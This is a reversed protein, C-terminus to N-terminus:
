LKDLQVLYQLEQSIGRMGVNKSLKVKHSCCMVSELWTEAHVTAALCLLQNNIHECGHSNNSHWYKAVLQM